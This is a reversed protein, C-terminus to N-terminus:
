INSISSVIYGKLNIIPNSAKKNYDQIQKALQPVYHGACAHTDVFIKIMKNDLYIYNFKVIYIILILEM